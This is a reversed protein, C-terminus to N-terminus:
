AFYEQLYAILSAQTHNATHITLFREHTARHATTQGICFAPISLIRNLEIGESIARHIFNTVASPSFFTIGDIMPYDCLCIGGTGIITQYAEACWVDVGNACLEDALSTDSLDSHPMFARTGLIPTHDLLAHAHPLTAMIHWTPFTSAIQNATKQGVAIVQANPIPLKQVMFREYLVHVTQVSTIILSDVMGYCLARLGDDLPRTNLTPIIQICPYHLANAGYSRLERAFQDHERTIILTRNTLGM